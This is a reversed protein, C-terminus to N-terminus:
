RIPVPEATVEAVGAPPTSAGTQRIAPTADNREILSQTREKGSLFVKGTLQVLEHKKENPVGDLREALNEVWDPQRAMALAMMRVFLSVERFNKDIILNSVPSALKAATGFAQSPFTVFLDLRHSVFMRGDRTQEVSTVLHMIARARVTSKVVPSKFEGDCFVLQHVADRYLVQMRGLTGDGGDVDFVAPASQRMQLTSVNMARWIAVAVDPHNTFYHYVAPDVEFRLAPLRRFMDVSGVIKDVERRVQPSLGQLPLESEADKRTARTSSAKGVVEVQELLEEASHAPEAARVSDALAVCSVFLVVGLAILRNEPSPGM